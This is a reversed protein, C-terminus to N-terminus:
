YPKMAARLVVTRISEPDEMFAQREWNLILLRSSRKRVETKKHQNRRNVEELQQLAWAACRNKIHM